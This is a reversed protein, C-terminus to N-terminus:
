DSSIENAVTEYPLSGFCGGGRQLCRREIGVQQDAM